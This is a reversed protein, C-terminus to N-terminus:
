PSSIETLFYRLGEDPARGIDFPGSTSLTGPFRLGCGIDCSYFSVRAHRPMFGGYTMSSHLARRARDDTMHYPQQACEAVRLAAFPRSAGFSIRDFPERSSPRHLTSGRVSSM